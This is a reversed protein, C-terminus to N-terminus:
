FRSSSCVATQFATSHCVFHYSHFQQGQHNTWTVGDMSITDGFDKPEHIAGPRPITPKSTELCTSCRLHNIGALVHSPCGLQRCFETLKAAGPHGLNRHIKLLWNREERNLKLFLPGHQKSEFDVAERSTEAPSSGESPFQSVSPKEERHCSRKPTPYDFQPAERPITADASTSTHGSQSSKISAFVTLSVRAAVGKRRLGKLTLREWPEWEDDVQIDEFRRRICARKRLPAVGKPMTQSPGVYRDTGRCLVVHHIQHNPHLKEIM